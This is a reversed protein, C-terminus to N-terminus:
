VAEGGVRIPILARPPSEQILRVLNDGWFCMTQEWPHTFLGWALGDPFFTFYDGDPYITIPWEAEPASLNQDHCRWLYGPHRWDLAIIEQGPEILSCFCEVVIATLESSLDEFREVSWFDDALAYTISDRPELIAARGDRKYRLRLDAPVDEHVPRFAFRDFFAQWAASDDFEHWVPNNASSHM